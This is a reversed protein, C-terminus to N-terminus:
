RFSSKCTRLCLLQFHDTGLTGLVPVLVWFFNWNCDVIGGYKLIMLVDWVTNGDGILAAQSRVFLDNTKNDDKM